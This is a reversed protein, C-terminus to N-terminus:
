AADMFIDGDRAIVCGGRDGRRAMYLVSDATSLVQGIKRSEGEVYAIGISAIPMPPSAKDTMGACLENLLRQGTIPLDDLLDPACILMAMERCSMSAIFSGRLWPARMRNAIEHIVNESLPQRGASGQVPAFAILALAYRTGPFAEELRLDNFFQQLHRRNPLGSRPDKLACRRLEREADHARSIDQFVGFISTTAGHQQEARGMSRVRKQRGRASIFDLELDFGTGDEIAKALAMEIAPRHHPPYFAIANDIRVDDAPELDHIRFIGPTWQVSPAGVQWKWFGLKGIEETEALLTRIPFQEFIDGHIVGASTGAPPATKSTWPRIAAELFKHM